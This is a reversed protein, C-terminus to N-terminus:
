DCDYYEMKLDYITEEIARICTDVDKLIEGGWFRIVTWDMFLLKKNVEDDHEINKSIKSIWFKSNNSNILRPELV